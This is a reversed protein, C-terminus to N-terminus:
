LEDDAHSLQKATNIFIQKLEDSYNFRTQLKEISILIDGDTQLLSSSKWDLLMLILDVLTMDLIGKEFHEPHHPNNEYHHKLAIHLEELRVSYARSAFPTTKNTPYKILIEFEPSELKSKDHDMGRTLIDVVIDSVLERMIKIHQLIRYKEEPESIYPIHETDGM